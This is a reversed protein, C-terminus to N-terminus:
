RFRQAMPGSRRLPFDSRLRVSCRENFDIALLGDDALRGNGRFRVADSWKANLVAFQLAFESLTDNEAFWGGSGAEDSVLVPPDELPLDGVRIGWQVVAQNEMYFALVNGEIKLQEPLVLRDQSSWVEKRAASMSHSARFAVPLKIGLRREASDLRAGGVASRISAPGFWADIFQELLNWRESREKSVHRPIM